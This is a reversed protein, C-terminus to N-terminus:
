QSLYDINSAKDMFSGVEERNNNEEQFTRNELLVFKGGGGRKYGNLVKRYPM